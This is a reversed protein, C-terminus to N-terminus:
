RRTRRRRRDRSSTASPWLARILSCGVVVATAAPASAREGRPRPARAVGVPARSPRAEPTPRPIATSHSLMTTRSGNAVTTAEDVSSPTLPKKSVIVLSATAAASRSVTPVASTTVRTFTIMPVNIAQTSTRSWKAPRAASSTKISMGNASGVITAPRTRSESYPGVLGIPISMAWVRMAIATATANTVSGNTTRVTWGTRSSSSRSTSSAAIDSPADRNVVNRRMTSGPRTGAIAEPAASDNARPMLSYPATTRIAPLMGNRVSIADTRMRVWTSFSWVVAAATVAVTRSIMLRSM